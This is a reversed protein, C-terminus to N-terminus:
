YLNLKTFDLDSRCSRELKHYHCKIITVNGLGKWSSLHGNSFRLPGMELVKLTNFTKNQVTYYM